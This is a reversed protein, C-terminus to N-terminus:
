VSVKIKRRTLVLQTFGSLHSTRTGDLEHIFLTHIFCGHFRLGGLQVIEDLLRRNLGYPKQVLFKTEIGSLRDNLLDSTIESLRGLHNIQGTIKGIHFFLGVSWDGSSRRWEGM